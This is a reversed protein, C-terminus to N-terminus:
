YQQRYSRVILPKIEGLTDSIHIRTDSGQVLVKENSIDIVPRATIGDGIEQSRTGTTDNSDDDDGDHAAGNRFKVAYLWSTGGAACPEDTPAFSTFYVIGAALAVQETVREGDANGLAIYWGRAGAVDNIASTQDVLDSVDLSAGSHNDIVCYFAQDTTSSMDSPDVYKGTGFYIYVSNDYDVTVV